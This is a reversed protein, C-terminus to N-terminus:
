SPPIRAELADALADGVAPTTRCGLVRDSGATSGRRTRGPAAASSTGADMARTLGTRALEETSFTRMPGVPSGITGASGACSMPGPRGGSHRRADVNRDVHLRSDASRAIGHLGPPEFGYRAAVPRLDRNLVRNVHHLVFEGTTLPRRSRMSALIGRIAPFGGRAYIERWFCAATMYSPFDVVFPSLDSYAHPELGDVYGSADCSFDLTQPSACCALGAGRLAPRHLHRPRRKGM